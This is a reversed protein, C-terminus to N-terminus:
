RQQHQVREAYIDPHLKSLLWKRTDVRLKSRQVCESDVTRIIDGNIRRREMYDNRGDEAIDLIDEARHLAQARRAHAYKSAFGATNLHDIMQAIFHHLDEPDSIISKRM